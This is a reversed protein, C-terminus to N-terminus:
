GFHGPLPSSSLKLIRRIRGRDLVVVGTYQIVDVSSSSLIWITIYVTADVFRDRVILHCVLLDMVKMLLQRVSIDLHLKGM